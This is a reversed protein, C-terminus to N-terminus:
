SLDLAFKKLTEIPMIELTKINTWRLYVKCGHGTDIPRKVFQVFVGTMEM